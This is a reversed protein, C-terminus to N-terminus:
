FSSVHIGKEERVLLVDILDDLVNVHGLLGAVDTDEVDGVVVQAFSDEATVLSANIDFDDGIILAGGVLAGVNLLESIGTDLNSSVICWGVVHVVFEHNNITLEHQRSREVPSELSTAGILLVDQNNVM